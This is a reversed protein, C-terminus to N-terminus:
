AAEPVRALRQLNTVVAVRRLDLTNKRIGKYRAKTCWKMLEYVYTHARNM